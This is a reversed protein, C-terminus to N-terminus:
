YFLNMDGIVVRGKNRDGSPTSEYVEFKIEYTPNDFEIYVNDQFERMTSIVFVDFDMQEQWVGNQDKYYLKIYDNSGLGENGSWLSIDLNMAKIAVDFEMELYALGANARNASLVLYQNEIYSCRLRKTDLTFGNSTTIEEEKEYFFYQGQLTSENIFDNAFDIPRIIQNNDEVEYYIIGSFLNSLLTSDMYAEYSQGMGWNLRAKFIVNNIINGNRDIGQWEQYEYVNVYHNGFSGSGGLGCYITVPLGENISQKVRNIKDTLSMFLGWGQNYAVIQENLNYEEILTNFSDVYDSPWTFTQKNGSSKTLQETMYKELMLESETMVLNSNRSLMDPLEVTETNTFVDYALLVRDTASNIPNEMISTYGRFRAFYDLIGIMALPGCGGYSSEIGSTQIATDIDKTPFLDSDSGKIEVPAFGNVDITSKSNTMRWNTSMYYKDEFYPKAGDVSNMWYNVEVSDNWLWKAYLTLDSEVIDQTFDWTDGTSTVWEEFSCNDRKVLSEDPEIILNGAVVTQTFTSYLSNYMGGDCDFTVTYTISGEGNSDTAAHVKINNKGAILSVCLLLTLLSLIIKKM